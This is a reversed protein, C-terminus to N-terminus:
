KIDTERRYTDYIEFWKDLAESDSSAMQQAHYHSLVSLHNKNYKKYVWDEFEKWDFGILKQNDPINYLEEALHLGYFLARFALLSKEGLWMGPRKRIEELFDPISNSAKEFPTPENPNM